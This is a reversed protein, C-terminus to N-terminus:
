EVNRSYFIELMERRLRDEISQAEAPDLDGANVGFVYNDLNFEKYMARKEYHEPVHTRVCHALRQVSKAQLPEIANLVSVLMVPGFREEPQDVVMKGVSKNPANPSSPDKALEDLAKREQPTLAPPVDKPPASSDEFLCHELPKYVDRGNYPISKTESYFRNFRDRPGIYSPRAHLGEGVVADDGATAASSLSSTTAALAAALLASPSM